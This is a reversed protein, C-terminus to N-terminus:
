FIAVRCGFHDADGGMGSDDLFQHSGFEDEDNWNDEFGEGFLNYMWTRLKSLPVMEAEAVSGESCWTGINDDHPNIFYYNTVQSDETVIASYHKERCFKQVATIVGVAEDANNIKLEQVGPKPIFGSEKLVNEFLQKKNM